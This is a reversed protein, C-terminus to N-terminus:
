VHVLGGGQVHVDVGVNQVYGSVVRVQVHGLGRGQIHVLGGGQVVLVLGGGPRVMTSYGSNGNSSSRGM